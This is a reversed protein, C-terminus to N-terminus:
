CGVRDQWAELDRNRYALEGTSAAVPGRSQRHWRRLTEVDVGLALAATAASILREEPKNADSV